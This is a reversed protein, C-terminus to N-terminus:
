IYNLIYGSNLINENFAIPLANNLILILWNQHMNHLMQVFFAQVTLRSRITILMGPDEGLKILKLM